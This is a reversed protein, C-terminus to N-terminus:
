TCGHDLTSNTGEEQNNIKRYLKKREETIEKKAKKGHAKGKKFTQEFGKRYAENSPHSVIAM